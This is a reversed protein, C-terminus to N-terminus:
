DMESQEEAEQPADSTLGCVQGYVILAAKMNALAAVVGDREGRALAQDLERDALKYERVLGELEQRRAEKEMAAVEEAAKALRWDRETAISRLEAGLRAEEVVRLREDAQAVCEDAQLLAGELRQLASELRDVQRQSDTSLGFPEELELQARLENVQEFDPWPLLQRFRYEQNEFAQQAARERSTARELLQLARAHADAPSELPAQAAAPPPPMALAADLPSFDVAEGRLMEEATAAMALECSHQEADVLKLGLVRKRTAAFAAELTPGLKGAKRGIKLADGDDILRGLVMDGILWGQGVLQDFNGFAASLATGHKECLARIVKWCILVLEKTPKEMSGRRGSAAPGKARVDFMIAVRATAESALLDASTAATSDDSTDMPRQSSSAGRGADKFLAGDPLHTVGSANDGLRARKPHQRSSSGNRTAPGEVTTTSGSGGDAATFIHEDPESATSRQMAAALSDM